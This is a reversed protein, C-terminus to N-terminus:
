GTHERLFSHAQTRVEAQHGLLLHGGTPLALFRAGPIHDATYQGFMFANIGDDMAHVVLTPATINGVPYDVRPDIAAGENRVGDFRHTVPQFAAITSAVMAAEEPSLTGRLTPSVDFMGDLATPAVRELLWYPFDSAFLAHYVWIPVPLKQEPASLPTYPASSLLVLASTREPYRLAFQLASPVGGSMAIIGVRKIELQDLLEAYADAQAIPSADVPLPTRLYGFRSPSIWRFGDGGFARAQLVGQDYGGGAGHLVLMTPGNGWMAYEIPGHPTQLVQSGAAVASRIAQLDRAYILYTAGVAISVLSVICLAAARRMTLPERRAKLTKALRGPVGVIIM